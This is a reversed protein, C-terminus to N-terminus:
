RSRTVAAWAEQLDVGALTPVQSLRPHPDLPSMHPIGVVQCGAALASAVGTPSDELVLCDAPDVELLRAALLYPAPDPKSAPVEDGAVTVDFPDIGFDQAM